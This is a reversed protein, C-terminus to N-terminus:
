HHQMHHGLRKCHLLIVRGTHWLLMAQRDIGKVRESTRTRTQCMVILHPHSAPNPHSTSQNTSMSPTIQINSPANCSQEHSTRKIQCDCDPESWGQRQSHQQDISARQSWLMGPDSAAPGSTNTPSPPLGSTPMHHILQCSVSHRSTKTTPQSTTPTLHTQFSIVNRM